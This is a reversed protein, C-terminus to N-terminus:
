LNKFIFETMKTYLHLRTNGGSINHNKNPYFFMEYQKGANNLATALDISNQLHVNDDATGHVMLFKGQLKDAWFVPSNEDYGQPNEQPMGQFRETYINDYYRWNTVPAVAIAMSFAGEGKFLSLASLYGGFSWGWIGIRDPNVFPLTKLYRAFAIQDDSEYKGMQKYIVKKFAEGKGGSGRGDACAIIYGHQSLYQYWGEINFNKTVEMSGPGGYTYVLVPYQKEPDFDAPKMMWYDMTIGESSTFQYFEKAVCHFEDMKKKLNANEQLVRIENGKNDNITHYQPKSPTSYTNRYYNGTSSFSATNWGEGKSLQTKKKGLFDVVFLNRGLPDAENSLYYIQKTKQNVYEISAVEWNGSTIQKINGNFDVLYIHNYGNRESTLIMSNNNSLFYYQNSVNLWYPNTDSFSLFYNHNLVNYKYFNLKNQTRNLQLVMIDTSNNLWFLRPYYVEVSTEIVVKEIKKNESNYVFIEVTANDEGAKPYKYKYEEPYLNGWMTMSFEKVNTEDFRMFALYKGNPSWWFTKSMDLEEEHVWDPVGNLIHNEKGDFTVQYEKKTKLDVYFLNYNRVFAVKDGNDSFTPFSIKEASTHSVPILTKEKSDFVYYYGKSTRRYIYEIETALLIKDEKKSFSYSHIKEITLSDNSLSALLEDSLVTSIYDGSAFHHINIGNKTFESYRNSSPLPQFRAIGESRLTGKTFIDELTLTQSFATISITVFLSLFIKKMIRSDYIFNCLYHNFKFLVTQTEFFKINIQLNFFM